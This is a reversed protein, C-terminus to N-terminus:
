GSRGPSGCSSRSGYIKDPQETNGPELFKALHLWVMMWYFLECAQWILWDRLKPRALAVLPLLWLVYQPSYVKNVLLFAAVTLFALQAFRPRQPAAFALVAIALCMGAFILLSLNNVDAVEREALKLVYWVSGYDSEREDKNFRWFAMWQEKALLYIPANVLVWTVATSLTAALWSDLRRGRICILLLPGLLLFPYFKAATGLGLLIGFWVPRGRAWAWMAGATLAVAFLDWNITSTVALAPAAAVYLADMPQGRAGGAGSPRGRATAVTWGVLFLACIFLLGVNVVFFVGATDRRQQDNVDQKPNGTVLWTAEAAVQMFGGTLVPYELVPYTGTDLYPMNGEAFGREQYLFGVDSYCLAKFPRWNQRDWGADMCPAKQLVGLAFTITCVALAVRLPTWWSRGIRAFRGVPGGLGTTLEAISRDEQSPAEREAEPEAPRRKGAHRPRAAGRPRPPLVSTVAGM